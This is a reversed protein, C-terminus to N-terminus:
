GILCYGPDTLIEPFPLIDACLPRMTTEIGNNGNVESGSNGRRWDNDCQEVLCLESPASSLIFSRHALVQHKDRSSPLSFKQGCITCSFPKCPAAVKFDTDILGDKQAQLKSFLDTAGEFTNNSKQKATLLNVVARDLLDGLASSMKSKLVEGVVPKDNSEESLSFCKKVDEAPLSHEQELHIAMRDSPLVQQCSFCLLRKSSM